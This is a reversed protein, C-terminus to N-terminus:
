PWPWPWESGSGRSAVAGSGLCAWSQRERTDQRESSMEVTVGFNARESLMELAPMKKTTLERPPAMTRKYVACCGPTTVPIM